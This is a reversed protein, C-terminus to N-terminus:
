NLENIKKLKHQYSDNHNLIKIIDQIDNLVIGLKIITDLDEKLLQYANPLKKYQYCSLQMHKFYTYKKDSLEKLFNSELGTWIYKDPFNVLVDIMFEPEKELLVHNISYKLMSLWNQDEDIIKFSLTNGEEKYNIPLISGDKNYKMISKFKKLIKKYDLNDLEDFLFLPLYITLDNKTKPIIKLFKELHSIYQTYCITYPNIQFPQPIIDIDLKDIFVGDDKNGLGINFLSRKHYYFSFSFTLINSQSLISEDKFYITSLDLKTDSDIRKEKLKPYMKALFHFEDSNTLVTIDSNKVDINLNSIVDYLYDMFEDNNEANLLANIIQKRYESM